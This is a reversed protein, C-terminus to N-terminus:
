GLGLLKEANGGLIADIEEKTFQIGNPAQRPLNKLKNIFDKIPLVPDFVPSDSGFLVQEVGAYDIIDRLERCFLEFKGFAYPGWMALDGYLNPHFAALAGWPRWNISGIHAAIIKLKPFDMLIDSLLLPNSFKSRTRTLPGTHTLLIGNKKELYELLQYSEPSTPDFGNDPHYKLGKMSFEEFCQKLMGLAEPRRPDIGAFPILRNRYTKAIDSIGKNISQNIEPTLMENNANDVHCVVSIDIGANNMFNILKKGDKYGGYTDCCRQIIIDESMEIGMIKAVRLLEPLMHKVNEPSQRDALSLHYHVDIIM